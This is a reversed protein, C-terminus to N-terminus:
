DYIIYGPDWGPGYVGGWWHSRNFDYYLGLSTYPLRVYSLVGLLASGWWRDEPVGAGRLIEAVNLGVEVGLNRQRAWDPSYRYGRAGYAVSVLLFRAPGPKTGVRPLLGALKLDLTYIQKSYDGGYGGYRCCPDPIASSVFGVRMGVTDRLGLRGVQSSAVAGVVNMAADEWSAGYQSFGDGTEVLVGAVSGVAVSLLRAERDTRGLGRYASELLDQAAWGAFVHSAKDAGGAYTTPGFGNERALVFRGGPEDRWWAWYGMVPTVALVGISFWRSKADLLPRDPPPTSFVEGAEGLGFGADAIAPRSAVAL